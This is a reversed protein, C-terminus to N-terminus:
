EIKTSAIRQKLKLNVSLLEDIKQRYEQHRAALEEQLEAVEIAKNAKTQAQQQTTLNYSQTYGDLKAELAEVTAQKELIMIDKRSVSTSMAALDRQFLEYTEVPITENPPNIRDPDTPDHAPPDTVLTKSVAKDLGQELKLDRIAMMTLDLRAQLDATRKQQAKLVVEQGRRIEKKGACERQLYEKDGMLSEFAVQDKRNELVVLAGDKKRHERKLEDIQANVEFLDRDAVRIDNYLMLVREQVDEKSKLEAELAKSLQEKKALLVKGTALEKRITAELTIMEGVRLRLTDVDTEHTEPHWGTLQVLEDRQQQTRELTKNAEKVNKSLVNNERQLMTNRRKAVQLTNELRIITDLADEAAIERPDKELRKNKEQVEVMQNHRESNEASLQELEHEQAALQRELKAIRDDSDQIQELILVRASEQYQAM